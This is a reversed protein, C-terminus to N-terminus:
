SKNLDHKIIVNKSEKKLKRETDCYDCILHTYKEDEYLSCSYKKCVSCYYKVVGIRTKTIDTM